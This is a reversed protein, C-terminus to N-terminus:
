AYVVVATGPQVLPSAALQPNLKYLDSVSTKTRGAIQPVTCRKEVHYVKVPKAQRIAQQKLM